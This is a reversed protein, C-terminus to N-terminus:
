GNRARKTKGRGQSIEYAEEHEELMKTVQEPSSVDRMSTCHVHLDNPACFTTGSDLAVITMPELEHRRLEGPLGSNKFPEELFRYESAFLATEGATWWAMELPTTSDRFLFVKEPEKLNVLVIAGWGRIQAMAKRIAEATNM